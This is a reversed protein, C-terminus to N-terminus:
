WTGPIAELEDLWAKTSADSPMQWDGRPSLSGAAVVTPGDPLASRKFQQQIFRRCFVDLWHTITALDYSRREDAEVGRPWHGADPDSWAHHALFAIKSPRFGYRMVHYLNFDQLEYPGIAAQTSQPMEGPRAPVLEPSIETALISELVAGVRQDFIGSAIVWRILHQMLTKPVGANVGYHSMQDGVGYTCWGLSLESLDGTGLVIGGRHNAIRFLYDTRLGAQVNEFTVDYVDQGQGYPHGLDRLMQEAAPRIDLTQFSCGLSTALEAANNRTRDSTAFGPMTYTLIDSRPRGLRDMTHAAVLLAHTSDLGGSVGLVIKPQGIASLRQALASVQINYAEYCDQDLVSEDDPVFPLRDVPRRLGLDTIPPDLDFTITAFDASEHSANDDFTRQNLRTQRLLDLDLDAISIQPETAFPQSAALQVGNEYIMTQGDWARNTSSEGVGSATYLYGALFRASHAACLRHREQARGITAPSGSLNVLINAGALAAQASPPVPVWADEGIEIHFCFGGIDDATFLLAGMPATQGALVIEGVAGTGPAFHRGQHNPLYTKPVVGLVRGRHIVVACDYLRNHWRLPAGIVLVPLLDASAIVIQDLAELTADLVVTSGFLDDISYGTLCLEPYSVLAVGQNSLERAAALVEAANSFPDALHIRTAAAAVRLFGHAYLSRFESSSTM